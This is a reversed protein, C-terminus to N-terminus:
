INVKDIYNTLMNNFDKDFLAFERWQDVTLRIDLLLPVGPRHKFSFSESRFCALLTNRIVDVDDCMGM